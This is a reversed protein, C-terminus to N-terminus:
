TSSWGMLPNEWRERTDFEMRWRRTGFNGSQTANRAPSYIRVHRTKIHEEPVGSLASIDDQILFSILYSYNLIDVISNVPAYRYIEVKRPYMSLDIQYLCNFLNM